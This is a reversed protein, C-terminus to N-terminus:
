WWWGLRKGGETVKERSGSLQKGTAWIGRRGDVYGIGDRAFVRDGCSFNKGNGSFNRVGGSLPKGGGTFGKGSGSLDECGGSKRESGDRTEAKM